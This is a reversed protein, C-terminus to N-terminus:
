RVIEEIATGICGNPMQIRLLAAVTPAIDTMNVSRHTVGPRVGWGMFILPIHADYPHWTGHTTGQPRGEAYVGYWGPKVIIQIIGSRERNYGNIVRERILAPIPATVAKEMDLVYAVGEEEKLFDIIVSKVKELELQASDIRAYNLHVQYNGLGTILSSKINFRQTLLSDLTMKIKSSFWGGAPIGHDQLFAVNHAGGHDATLFVTYNGEGVTEDLYRLFAGLDRDLRIYTDETEMANTGFQHGIYDTASLSVALFDTFEGKGLSEGEMAAKAMDLTLTNGWPTSRIIGYGKKKFLKSLAVPFVPAEGKVLPEEYTTSDGTSQQYAERPLLLNWDQKLYRAALDKKNFDVVWRPLTKMYYTSSIWKGVKSDFWYAANATHGAPLIAARDKLAIGIVKSRFNTALRLEDGVTTVWLNRPSMEGNETQSGVGSVSKDETCYVSRGEREIMFNNGAIGHISPVSGTYICTHGIATYTPIYNLMTNECAFGNNLLRKFGDEGYNEYYRYLYDWRMQDVVIGVILKPRLLKNEDRAVISLSLSLFLFVFILCRSRM